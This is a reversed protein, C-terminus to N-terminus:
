CLDAFDLFMTCGDDGGICAREPLVEICRVAEKSAGVGYLCEATNIDHVLVWGNAAGSLCLNGRTQLCGVAERHGSLTARTQLGKRVDLVHVLGDSGGSVVADGQSPPVSAQSVCEYATWDYAGTTLVSSRVSRISNVHNGPHADVVAVCRSDRLDWMRVQGDWSGTVLLNTAGQDTCIFECCQVPQRHGRLQSTMQGTRLDWLGVIMDRGGSAVLSRHWAFSLVAKSHGVLDSVCSWDRSNASSLDWVKLTADYSSSICVDSDDIKLSSISSQHGTLDTCRAPTNGSTVSVCADWVCLKADMAGSVIRGDRIYAASTVWEAHGANRSFLQRIMRPAPGSVDFERLGHDASGTVVRNRFAAMCLIARDHAQLVHDRVPGTRWQSDVVTWSSINSRIDFSLPLSLSKSSPGASRASAASTVPPRASGRSSM